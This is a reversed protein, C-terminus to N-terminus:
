RVSTERYTFIRKERGANRIREKSKFKLSKIVIHRPTKRESNVRKCFRQAKYVYINVNNRISPPLKLDNNRKTVEM